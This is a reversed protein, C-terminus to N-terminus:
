CLGLVTRACDLCLRLLISFLTQSPSSPSDESQGRVARVTKPSDESQKSQGWLGSPSRPPPYLVSNQWCYVKEFWDQISNPVCFVRRFSSFYCYFASFLIHAEYSSLFFSLHHFNIEVHWVLRLLIVHGQKNNGCDIYGSNLKNYVWYKIFYSLTLFSDWHRLM